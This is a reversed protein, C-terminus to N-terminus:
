HSLSSFFVANGRGEEGGRGGQIEVYLNAKVRVEELLEFGVLLLIRNMLARKLCTRGMPKEKHNMSHRFWLFGYKLMNRFGEM